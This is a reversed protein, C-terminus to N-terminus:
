TDSQDRRRSLGLYPASNTRDPWLLHNQQDWCLRALKALSESPMVTQIGRGSLTLLPCKGGQIIHGSEPTFRVYDAYFRVNQEHTGRCSLYATKEVSNSSAM